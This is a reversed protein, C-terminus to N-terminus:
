ELEDAIRDLLGMASRTQVLAQRLQGAQLAGGALDLDNGAQRHWERLRANDASEVDEGLNEWRRRADGILASVDEASLREEVTRVARMLAERTQRIHREAMVFRGENFAGQAAQYSAQALNLEETGRANDPQIKEGVREIAPALRELQRETHDGLRSRAGPGFPGRLGLRNIGERAELTVKLAARLRRERFLQWARNQAVQAQGMRNRALEGDPMRDRADELARDTRELEREVAAESDEARRVGSLASLARDRADRTLGLALRLNNNNFAMRAREQLREAMGLGGRGRPAGTEDLLDRAKEIVRDTKEIEATVDDRSQAGAIAPLCLVCLTGLALLMLLFPVLSARKTEPQAIVRPARRVELRTLTYVSRVKPSMQKVRERPELGFPYLGFHM